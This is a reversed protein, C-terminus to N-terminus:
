EGRQCVEFDELMPRAPGNWFCASYCAGSQPDQPKPCQAACRDNLRSVQVFDLEGRKREADLAQPTPERARPVGYTQYRDKFDQFRRLRARLVDSSQATGTKPSNLRKQIERIEGTLVGACYAAHLAKANGPPAIPEEQAVDVEISVIGALMLLLFFKARSRM